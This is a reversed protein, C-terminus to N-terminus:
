NLVGDRIITSRRTKVQMTKIAKLYVLRAWEPTREYRRSITSFAEPVSGDIGMRRIVVDRQVPTLKSLAFGVMEKTDSDDTLETTSVESSLWDLPGLMEDPKESELPIGRISDASVVKIIHDLTFDKGMLATQEFIEEPTGPRGKEQLIVEDAKRITSADNLINQPVRVTRNSSNLYLLIEKRIHWVAFSIFKFGRTPDFLRAADCLGINGQCILDELLGSSGSYQKAVSVVFRLNASILRQIAEEDGERALMGVRFEEEASLMEKREVETFYRAINETRLTLKDSSIKLQRV